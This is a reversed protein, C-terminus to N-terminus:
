AAKAAAPTLVGDLLNLTCQTAGQQQL